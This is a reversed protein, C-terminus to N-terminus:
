LKQVEELIRDVSVSIGVFEELWQELQFKSIIFIRSGGEIVLGFPFKGQAIGERLTVPSVKVGAYRLCGAAQEPTLTSCEVAGDVCGFDTIMM